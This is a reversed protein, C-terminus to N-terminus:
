ATPRTDVEAIFQHLFQIKTAIVVEPNPWTAWIVGCVRAFEANWSIGRQLCSVFKTDWLLSGSMGKPNPLDVM